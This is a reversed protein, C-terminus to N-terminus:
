SNDAEISFFFPFNHIELDQLLKVSGLNYDPSPDSASEDESNSDLDLYGLNYPNM